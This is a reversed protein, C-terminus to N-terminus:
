LSSERTGLLGLTSLPATGLGHRKTCHSGIEFRVHQQRAGTGEEEAVM